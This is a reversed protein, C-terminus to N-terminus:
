LVPLLAPLLIPGLIVLLCAIMVVMGPFVLQVEAEQAAKEGWLSRKIRIQDAQERLIASLPTGLEEGKNIAFVLERIDDDRLRDDLAQLAEARSRGLAIQRLIEGFEEGLPHNQNEAVVKQLSEQFTGGAELMLAILDIAFPMRIRLLRIRTNARDSMTKAYLRPYFIAIPIGTLLGLKWFGTAGGMTLMGAAFMLGELMKTAMFEDAQWPLKEASVVINRQLRETGLMRPGIIRTIERVLPEFWRYIVSQQRLTNRREIEFSGQGVDISVKRVTVLQLVTWLGFGATLAVATTALLQGHQLILQSM